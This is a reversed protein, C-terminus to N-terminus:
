MSALIAPINSLTRTELEPAPTNLPWPIGARNMWIRRIEAARAGEMDFEPSDGIYIANASDVNGRRLAEHFIM